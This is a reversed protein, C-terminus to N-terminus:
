HQGLLKSSAGELAAISNCRGSLFSCAGTGAAYRWSGCGRRQYCEECCMYPQNPPLQVTALQALGSDTCTGTSVTCAATSVATLQGYARGAVAATVPATSAGSFLECSGTASEYSYYLCRPAASVATGTTGASSGYCLDCCTQEADQVASFSAIRTDAAGIAVDTPSCVADATPTQGQLPTAM